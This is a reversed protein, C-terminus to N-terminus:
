IPLLLDVDSANTHVSSSRGVIYICGQQGEWCVGFHVRPPTPSCNCSTTLISILKEAALRLGLWGAFIGPTAKEATSSILMIIGEKWSDRNARERRNLITYGDRQHVTSRLIHSLYEVGRAFAPNRGESRTTALLAHLSPTSRMMIFAWGRGKEDGEGEKSAM